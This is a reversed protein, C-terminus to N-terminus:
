QRVRPLLVDDAAQAARGARHAPVRRRQLHCRRRLDVAGVQQEAFAAFAADIEQPSSANRVMSSCDWRARRRRCTARDRGRSGSKESQGAAGMTKVAPLLDHLLELRKASLTNVLFTAGTVNGGPRNLSEVLGLRVPDGGISFVVPIPPTLKKAAIPASASQMGIIVAAKSTPLSRRWRRCGSSGARPSASSSRSMAARSSAPRTRPGAPDRRDTAGRPQHRQPHRGGADAVAARPCRVAYAAAAGGLLAIFERRKM